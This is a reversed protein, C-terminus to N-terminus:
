FNMAIETGFDYNGRESEGIEVLKWQKERGVEKTYHSFRAGDMGMMEFKLCENPFRYLRCICLEKGSKYKQWDKLVCDNAEELTFHIFEEGPFEQFKDYEERVSAYIVQQENASIESATDNSEKPEPNSNMNTPFNIYKKVFQHQAAYKENEANM